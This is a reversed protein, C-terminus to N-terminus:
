GDGVLGRRQTWMRSGTLLCLGQLKTDEARSLRYGWPSLHQKQANPEANWFSWCFEFFSWSDDGCFEFSADSEVVRCVSLKGLEMISGSHWPEMRKIKTWTVANSPTGTVLRKILQNAKESKIACVACRNLGTWIGWRYSNIIHNACRQPSTVMSTTSTVELASEKASVFSTSNNGIALVMHSHLWWKKLMKKTSIPELWLQLKLPHTASKSLNWVSFDRKRLLVLSSAESSAPEGDGPFIAPLFCILWHFM